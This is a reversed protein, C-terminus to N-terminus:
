GADPEAHRGGQNAAYLLRFILATVPYWLVGVGIAISAVYASADDRLLRELPSLMVADIPSWGLALYCSNSVVVGWRGIAAFMPIGILPIAWARRTFLSQHFQSRSNITAARLADRRFWAGVLVVGTATLAMICERTVAASLSVFGAPNLEVWAGQRRAIDTTLVDLATSPLWLILFLAATRLM